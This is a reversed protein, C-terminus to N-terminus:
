QPDGTLIVEVKAVDSALPRQAVPIGFSQIVGSGNVLLSGTVLASYLEANVGDRLIIAIEEVIVDTAGTKNLTVVVKKVKGINVEDLVWDINTVEVLSTGVSDNVGGGLEDVGTLSLASASAVVVGVTMVVTFVFLLIWKGIM